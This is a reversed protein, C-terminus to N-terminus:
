GIVRGRSDYYRYDARYVSNASYRHGQSDYVVRGGFVQGVTRASRERKKADRYRKYAYATGLGAGIALPKKKKLLGYATVAGLGIATNRRGKSGAHAAGVLPGAMTTASLVGLTGLAIWRNSHKM